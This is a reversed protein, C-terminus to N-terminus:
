KILSNNSFEPIDSTDIICTFCANGTYIVRNFGANGTDTVVILKKRVPWYYCFIIVFRMLTVSVPSAHKVLVSLAHM